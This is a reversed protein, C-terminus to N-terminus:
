DKLIDNFMKEKAKKLDPRLRSDDDQPAGFEDSKKEFMPCIAVKYQSLKYFGYIIGIFIACVIWSLLLYTGVVIIGPVILAVFSTILILSLIIILVFLSSISEIIVVNIIDWITVYGKKPVKTKFGFDDTRESERDFNRCLWANLGNIKEQEKKM